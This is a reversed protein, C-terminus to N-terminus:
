IVKLLSSIIKAKNGKCIFNIMTEENYQQTFHFWHSDYVSKQMSSPSHLVGIKPTSSDSSLAKCKSPLCEVVQAMGWDLHLSIKIWLSIRIHDTIHKPLINKLHRPKAPFFTTMILSVYQLHGVLAVHLCDLGNHAAIDFGCVPYNTIFIISAPFHFMSPRADTL